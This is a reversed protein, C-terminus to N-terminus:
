FVHYPYCEKSSIELPDTICQHHEGNGSRGAVNEFLYQNQFRMFMDPLLDTREATGDVGEGKDHNTGERQKKFSGPIDILLNGSVFLGQYGSM